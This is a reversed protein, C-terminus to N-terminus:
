HSVSRRKASVPTFVPVKGSGDNLLSLTARLQAEIAVPSLQPNRQLLRAAIGAIIPASWSTGSDATYIDAGSRYHDHGTSSAVLRSAV